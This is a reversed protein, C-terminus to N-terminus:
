RVKHKSQKPYDRQSHNNKHKKSRGTSKELVRIQEQLEKKEQLKKKENHRRKREEARLAQLIFKYVVM